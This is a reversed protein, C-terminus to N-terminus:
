NPYIMAPTVRPMSGVPLRSFFVWAQPFFFIFGGPRKKETLGLFVTFFLYMYVLLMPAIFFNFGMYVKWYVLESSFNFLLRVIHSGTWNLFNCPNFVILFFFLSRLYPANYRRWLRNALGINLLSFLFAFLVYFLIRWPM